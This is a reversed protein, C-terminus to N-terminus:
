SGLRCRLYGLAYALDYALGGWRGGLCALGFGRARGLVRRILSPRAQFQDVHGEPNYLVTEPFHKQAYASSYGNRYAMRCLAKWTNPMPHYHWIRPAIVIRLGADRYRNRLEPDVGRLIKDHFNGLRALVDRRTACCQTTVMDSDTLQEVIASQSRPIQAACRRQFDSSDLPLQQATGSLGVGPEQLAAVLKELVDDSGMRVDDDLFVLYESQTREVGVNRARGNPAVGRVIEIESPPLTQRKLDELLGALSDDRTRDGSPIVVAVSPM